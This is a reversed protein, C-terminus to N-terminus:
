QTLANSVPAPGPDQVSAGDVGSCRFSRLMPWCAPRTTPMSTAGTSAAHEAPRSTREGLWAFGFLHPMEKLSTGVTQVEPHDTVELGVAKGLVNEVWYALVGAAFQM